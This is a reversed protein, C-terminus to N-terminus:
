RSAAQLEEGGLATKIEEELNCSYSILTEYMQRVTEEDMQKGAARLAARERVEDVREQIIAPIDHEYKFHAVERIIETRQALLDVIQDDLADIRERFPKMKEKISDM